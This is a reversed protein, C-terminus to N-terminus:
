DATAAEAQLAQLLPVLLDELLKIREIKKSDVKLWYQYDEAASKTFRHEM